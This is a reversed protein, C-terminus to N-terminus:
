TSLVADSGFLNPARWGVSILGLESTRPCPPALDCLELYCLANVLWFVCNQKTQLNVLRESSVWMTGSSLYIVEISDSISGLGDGQHASIFRIREM